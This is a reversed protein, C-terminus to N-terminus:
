GSAVDRQSASRRFLALCRWFHLSANHFLHDLSYRRLRLSLRLRLCRPFGQVKATPSTAILFDSSLFGPLHGRPMTSFIYGPRSPSTLATFNYDPLFKRSLWHLMNIWQFKRTICNNTSRSSIEINVCRYESWLKQRRQSCFLPDMLNCFFLLIYPLEFM